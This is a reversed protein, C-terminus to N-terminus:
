IQRDIMDMKKDLKEDYEDIQGDGMEDIQRDMMDMQEDIQGDYENM